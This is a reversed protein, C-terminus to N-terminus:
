LSRWLAQREDLLLMSRDAIDEHRRLSREFTKATFQNGLDAELLGM